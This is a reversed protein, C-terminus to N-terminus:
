LVGTILLLLTLLGIERTLQSSDGVYVGFSVNGCQHGADCFRLRVQTLM